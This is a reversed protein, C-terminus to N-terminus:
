CARALWSAGPSSCWGSEPLALHSHSLAELPCLGLAAPGGSDMLRGHHSDCLVVSGTSVGCEHVMRCNQFHTEPSFDLHEM